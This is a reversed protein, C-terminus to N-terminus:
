RRNDSKIKNIKSVTNRNSDRYDATHASDTTNGSGFSALSAREGVMHGETFGESGMLSDAQVDTSGSSPRHGGSKQSAQRKHGRLFFNLYYEIFQGINFLIPLM